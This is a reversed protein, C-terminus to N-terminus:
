KNQILRWQRKCLIQRRERILRKLSYREEKDGLSFFVKWVDFNPLLPNADISFTRSQETVDTGKEILLNEIYTLFKM